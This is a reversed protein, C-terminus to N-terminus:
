VSSCLIVGNVIHFELDDDPNVEYTDQATCNVFDYVVLADNTGQPVLKPGKFAEGGPNAIQAFANAYLTENFSPKIIQTANRFLFFAPNPLGGLANKFLLIRQIGVNTSRDSLQFTPCIFDLALGVFIPSNQPVTNFVDVVPSAPICGLYGDAIGATGHAWLTASAKVGTGNCRLKTNQLQKPQFPWLIFATEPIVTANANTTLLDLKTFYAAVYEIYSHGCVRFM